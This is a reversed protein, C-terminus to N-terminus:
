TVRLDGSGGGRRRATGQQSRAAARTWHGRNTRSHGARETLGGQAILAREHAEAVAKTSHQGIVEFTSGGFSQQTQAMDKAIKNNPRATIGSPGPTDERARAQVCVYV